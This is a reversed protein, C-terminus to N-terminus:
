NKIKFNITKIEPQSISFSITPLTNNTTALKWSLDEVEDPNLNYKAKRGLQDFDPLQQIISDAPMVYKVDTIHVMQSTGGEQPIVEVQNGKFSVIRFYGKYKPQFPKRAHIKIMVLDNKALKTPHAPKNKDMRERAMKLNQAVLYYIKKLAELSLVNEDDGLYRLKPSFMKQLPIRPDRGFMLFFPSEKSHENPFFNYAACALHVVEDWEKTPAIHKSMCAKLFNHFGEIRGNSQPHYPPSYCRYEVGLEKAVMAFLDNKFESGNDSLIKRSAGYKTYINDIYAKIITPGSKNPIPICFTYGTLMCIVTLAYVNGEQSKPFNGILDMSIFEMPSKPVQFHGKTYQVPVINHQQCTKCQKVYTYIQPKMGKWYYMRKLLMYTRASGNHGMEDHAIKLLIPACSKNVVITEFRQKNDTIYRKLINDELYYPVGSKMKGTKLQEIIRKCFSDQKQVDQLDKNTLPNQMQPDPIPSTEEEMAQIHHLTTNHMNKKMKIPELEPFHYYGYEMGEPEPEAQIEPTINILRSMTDALTNKIGKIYQFKIRYQSIEIAWNNVKSNLTNKELFKKLPLHDSMLTIDADELYYTLKKVSMYIAYAEKTLTAWNLQSGRFLGSAYTIPHLISKIKHQKLYEEDVKGQVIRDEMQYPTYLERTKPDQFYHYEQTLVCAWAYKSADTFLTYPKTPNPYKLIPEKTLLEKIMEFTQQCRDTWEFKIDKKTLDTLPRAIDSYKPVFKRYYGALGLFQRVEKQTTPSPMEKLCSLKEPVPEIGEGSIIHGLYQIHAKLFNCKSEKLKLKAERLRGFIIRMHELHTEMDPSYILIDDLYGFAFPLGKLVEGILKQFYAPAQTLGFPVVKFEYKTGQPGGVVFATKPQAEPTLGIHYYGSRMDLASFIRAGKLKGYIEDIKPLPVFSSVGKAKSHAKKVPPLLSNVMRYDVCMRRKPPEGPESKKPVIVIPSAWPSISRVIVGANELIQLEKQVWEVHKLALNYPKQCIPPSDGTEIDMTVLPTRGIDESSKSFVDTFEECLQKFQEKDEDSVKADQLDPKRHETIDAPSTIFKKENDVKEESLTPEPEVEKMQSKLKDLVEKYAKEETMHMCTDSAMQSVGESMLHLEALVTGKPLYIMEKSLNIFIHPVTNYSSQATRHVLSITVLDPYERAITDTPVAEYLRDCQEPTITVRGHVVVLSRGPIEIGSKAKIEPKDHGFFEKISQILIQNEHQLSFKGEESWTTGIKYRRMFDLGLIFPTRINSCVIFNHVFTKGNIEFQLTTLGMIEIAKGSACVIRLGCIEQLETNGLTNYFHESICSRTAGTDILTPCLKNHVKVPIIAGYDLNLVIERVKATRNKKKM